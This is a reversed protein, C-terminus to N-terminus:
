LAGRFVVVVQVTCTHAACNSAYGFSRSRACVCCLYLHLHTYGTKVLLLYLFGVKLIERLRRITITGLYQATRVKAQVCPAMDLTSRQYISCYVAIYQLTSCYAAIHLMDLTSRQSVNSYVASYLPICLMSMDLTSRQRIPPIPLIPLIPPIPLPPFYTWYVM